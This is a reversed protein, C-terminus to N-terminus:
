SVALFYIIIPLLLIANPYDFFFSVGYALWVGMAWLWSLAQRQKYKWVGYFAFAMLFVTPAHQYITNSYSWSTTAFGYILTAALSPWLPLKFIDRLIKFVLLLTLVALFAIGAFSFLQGLNYRAGIIYFPTIFFPIGPPFYSFFKGKFYGVDPTSFDALNKPLDFQHLKTIALFQSYSGREHSTEFPATPSTLRSLSDINDLNGVVGKITLAYIVIGLIILFTLALKNKM